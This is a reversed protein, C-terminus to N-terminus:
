PHAEEFKALMVHLWSEETEQDVQPAWVKLTIAQPGANEAAEPAAPAAAEKEGGGCAVLSLAMARVLLMALIKKM